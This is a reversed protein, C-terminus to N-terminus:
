SKTEHNKLIELSKDFSPLFEKSSKTYWKELEALSIWRMEDVESEQLIFKTGSSMRTFFYQCFFTHDDFERTKPGFILKDPKVGIEEETEKTANEEYTEGEEVSGAASPGWIGPFHSKNKARRALLVQNKENFVWVAASRTIEKQRDREKHNKFYLINDQEDVIPIIM